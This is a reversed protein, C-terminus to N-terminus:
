FISAGSDNGDRSREQSYNFVCVASILVFLVDILREVEAEPMDKEISFKYNPNLAVSRLIFAALTESVHTSETRLITGSESGTEKPNATDGDICYGPLDEGDPKDQKLKKESLTIIATIIRNIFEESPM